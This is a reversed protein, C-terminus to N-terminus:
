DDFPDGDVDDPEPVQRGNAYYDTALKTDAEDMPEIVWSYATSPVLKPNKAFAEELAEKTPFEDRFERKPRRFLRGAIVEDLRGEVIRKGQKVIAAQSWWMGPYDGALDGTLVTTDGTLRDKLPQGPKHNYGEVQEVEVPTILILEGILQAPKVFSGGGTSRFKPAQSGSATSGFSPM